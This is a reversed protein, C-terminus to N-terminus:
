PAGPGGVPHQGGATGDPRSQRKEVEDVYTELPGKELVPAVGRIETNLPTATEREVQDLYAERALTLRQLSDWARDARYLRWKLRLTSEKRSLGEFFRAYAAGVEVLEPAKGVTLAQVQQAREKAALRVSLAKRRAILDRPTLPAERGDELPSTLEASGIETMRRLQDLGGSSLTGFDQIVRDQRELWQSWARELEVTGKGGALAVAVWDATIGEGSALRDLVVPWVQEHPKLSALWAVAMGCVAKTRHWREPLTDWAMVQGVGPRTSRPVWSNVIRRNRLRMAPDLNQALGVSLWQPVRDVPVGHGARRELVAAVALRCWGALLDEYDLPAYENVTLLYQVQGDVSVLQLGLGETGSGPNALQIHLPAQRSFALPLGLQRELRDAISEAWQTYATTKAADPGSVLFRGSASTTLTRSPVDPVVADEASVAAAGLLCLLGTLSRRMTLRKM